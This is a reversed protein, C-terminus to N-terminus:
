FRGRPKGRNESGIRYKVDVFMDFSAPDPRAIPALEAQRSALGLGAVVLVGLGVAMWLVTRSRKM